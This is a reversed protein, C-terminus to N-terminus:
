GTVREVYEGTRTDIKLLDGENVFLPVNVVLGTELTAPKTAGSATDGKVGPETSSVRLEVSPPLEVGIPREQYTSLEYTDNEKMYNVSDGIVEAPVPIQDFTATNMFYHVDGDNYLYQAPFREVRARAFKETAQFSREVTHGGRVDRLKLRIQASGRGMKIHQYELVTYLTGDLEITIGRKLEGVGIM